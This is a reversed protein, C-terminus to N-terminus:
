EHIYQSQIYAHLEPNTQKLGDQEIKDLLNVGDNDLAMVNASREEILYKVLNLDLHIGL